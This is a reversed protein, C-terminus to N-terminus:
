DHPAFSKQPSENLNIGGGEVVSNKKHSMKQEVGETMGQMLEVDNNGTSVVMM